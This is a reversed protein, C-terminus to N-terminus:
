SGKRKIFFLAAGVVIVIVAVVAVMLITGNGITEPSTVPASITQIVGSSLTQNLATTPAVSTSTSSSQTMIASTVSATAPGQFGQSIVPEEGSFVSQFQAQVGWARQYLYNVSMVPVHGNDLQAFENLTPDASIWGYNPIFFEVWNHKSDGRDAVSGRENALSGWIDVTPIGDARALATFLAAYHRCVGKGSTLAFLAGETNPNWPTVAAMDYTMHHVVFNQIKMAVLYPNTEGGAIAKATSIMEPNDSEIYQAPQTYLKYLQTNTDYNGVKTPDVSYSISYATFHQLITVYFQGLNTTSRFTITLVINGLSDVSTQNTFPMSPQVIIMTDRIEVYPFPQIIHMLLLFVPSTLANVFYTYNATLERAGSLTFGSSSYLDVSSPSSGLATVSSTLALAVLLILSATVIIIRCSSGNSM